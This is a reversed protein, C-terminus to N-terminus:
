RHNRRRQSDIYPDVSVNTVLETQGETRWQGNHCYSVIVLGANNGYSGIESVLNEYAAELSLQFAGALENGNVEGETLGIHYLRGNRSRGSYASTLRIAVTTGGPMAAGANTGALPLGTSYLVRLDDELELSTAEISELSTSISATPRIDSDWWAKIIGCMSQLDAEAFATGMRVHIVNMCKEDLHIFNLRFRATNDVRIFPHPGNCM